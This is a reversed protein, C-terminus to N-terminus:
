SGIPYLLDRRQAHKCLQQEMASIIQYVFMSSKVSLMYLCLIQYAPLTCKVANLPLEQPPATYWTSLSANQYVINAAKLLDEVVSYCRAETSTLDQHMDFCKGHFDHIFTGIVKLYM